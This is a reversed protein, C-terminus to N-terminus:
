SPAAVLRSSKRTEPFSALSRNLPFRTLNATLQLQALTLRRQTTEANRQAEATFIEDLVKVASACLVRFKRLSRVRYREPPPADSPEVGPYADLSRRLHM